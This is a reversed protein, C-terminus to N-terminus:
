STVESQRSRTRPTPPRSDREAFRAARLVVEADAQDAAHRQVTHCTRSSPEASSGDITAWRRQCPAGSVIMPVWGSGGAPLSIHRSRFSCNAAKAVSQRVSSRPPPRSRHDSCWWNTPASRCRARRCGGARCDRRTKAHLRRPGGPRRQWANRDIVTQNRGLDHDAPSEDTGVDSRIVIRQHDIQCDGRTRRASLSAAVAATVLELRGRPQRLGPGRRQPCLRASQRLGSAVLLCRRAPGVPRADARHTPCRSIEHFGTPTLEAILLQGLENFMWTRDGNRVM